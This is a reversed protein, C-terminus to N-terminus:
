KIVSGLFGSSMRGQNKAKAILAAAKPGIFAVEKTDWVEEDPSDVYAFVSYLKNHDKRLLDVEPLQELFAYKCILPHLKERGFESLGNYFLLLLETSSLQARLIKMYRKREAVSVQSEDVFRIIHYLNRFYHGLEGGFSRYLNQFAVDVAMAISDQSREHEPGFGRSEEDVMQAEYIERLKDYFIRFCARGTVAAGSGLSTVRIDAILSHHIRLLEFFISEFREQALAARQRVVEEQQTKLTVYIFIFAALSWLSGVAGQLFSGAAALDSKDVQWPYRPSVFALYGYAATLFGAIVLTWAILIWRSSRINSM